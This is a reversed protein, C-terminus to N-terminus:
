EDDDDWEDEESRSQRRSLCSKHLRHRSLPEGCLTCPLAKLKEDLLLRAEDHGDNRKTSM